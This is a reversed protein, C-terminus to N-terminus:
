LMSGLRRRLIFIKDIGAFVEEFISFSSKGYYAIESNTEFIKDMIKDPFLKKSRVQEIGGEFKIQKVIITVKLSKGCNYGLM